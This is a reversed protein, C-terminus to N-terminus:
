KENKIDKVINEVSDSNKWCNYIVRITYALSVVLGSFFIGQITNGNVFGFSKFESTLLVIVLTLSLAVAGIWDNSKRIRQVHATLINVLKDETIKIVNVEMNSIINAVTLNEGKFAM